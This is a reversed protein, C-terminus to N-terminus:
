EAVRKLTIQVTGNMWAGIKVDVDESDPILFLARYAEAVLDSFARIEAPTVPDNLTKM